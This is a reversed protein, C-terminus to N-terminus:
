TRPLETDEEPTGWRANTAKQRSQPATGSHINEDDDDADALPTVDPSVTTITALDEYQPLLM